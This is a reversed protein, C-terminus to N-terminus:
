GINRLVMHGRKEGNLLLGLPFCFWHSASVRYKISVSQLKYAFGDTETPEKLSGPHVLLLGSFLSRTEGKFMDSTCIHTWPPIFDSHLNHAHGLVTLLLFTCPNYSHLAVVVTHPRPLFSIRTTM